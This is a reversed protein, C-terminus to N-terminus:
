GGQARPRKLVAIAAFLIALFLLGEDKTWAAFGALVGAMAPCDLLAFLAAGAMFCALPVDAYQSPVETLVAPVGMLCLGALVGPVAGRLGAIGGTITSLLALFFLYRLPL